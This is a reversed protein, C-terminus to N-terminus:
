ISVGAPVPGRGEGADLARRETRMLVTEFAHIGSSGAQALALLDPCCGAFRFNWRGCRCHRGLRRDATDCGRRCRHRAAADEPRRLVPGSTSHPEEDATVCTSSM